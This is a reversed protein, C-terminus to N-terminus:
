SNYLSLLQQFLRIISLALGTTVAIGIVGLVVLIPAPDLKM